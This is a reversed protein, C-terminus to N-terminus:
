LGYMLILLGGAVSISFFTVFTIRAGFQEYFVGSVAYALMESVSSAMACAYVRKFTNILYIILFYNFSCSLWVVIM